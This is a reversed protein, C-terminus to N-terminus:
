RSAFGAEVLDLNDGHIGDRNDEVLLRLVSNPTAGPLPVDLNWLGDTGTLVPTQCLLTDDLFLKVVASGKGAAADDIGVRGVFRARPLAIPFVAEAPAHLGVGRAFTQGRVTLPQGHCNLNRWTKVGPAQWGTKLALPNLTDLYVDPSPPVPPSTQLNASATLGVLKGDRVCRAKLTTATGPPLTVPGTCVKSGATPETGDLTYVVLDSLGVKTLTVPSAFSKRDVVVKPQLPIRIAWAHQCPRTPEDQFRNPISITLGQETQHWALPESAGLMTIQGDAEARIGHLTLTHGPWERCLAYAFHADKSRTYRVSGEQYPPLVRTAYIAEGNVKLWAGLALLRQRVNEPYVGSANPGGIIALNGNRSVIDIFRHILRAPPGLSADDDEYNFAFSQSIGQCEEWPHTFSQTTNYESCFVDGHQDRTGLGYRDNVFVEKRGQARNYFYAALERSRLTEAPTAWEGDMWLGDPDFRDIMEKVLPTMYHDYYNRVPIQGSVRRRSEDTLPHLGAYTGWNWLRCCPQNNTGLVATAWEEYCFYLVTRLQQQRAAALLPTLLDQKPGLHVFNRQTWNSEWWAVGDHHKSMTILYRAGAEKFLNVLANPEFAQAKFYPLFDDWQFDAGWHQAHHARVEPDVYMACGYADPYMAGGRKKDWAPVSHMGWNLMVGLKADLFWEPAQHTDLSQWTPKWPGQENVRHLEHLETEARRMLPASSNDALQETTPQCRFPQFDPPRGPPSLAEASAVAIVFDVLDQRHFFEPIEEHGKGPVVLLRMSGGLAAYRRALEGSNKELPVVRDSDGHIHLIPVHADALPKLRDIPNHEPLHAALTPEDMGYAACAKDLGPYSRLDCVTYIGAVCAVRQPNEAAWNYLMLGGRSQPMLCARAALPYDRRLKQYLATFLQRGAPNGCSEGVDVGAIAIGRDLFQNFMWIHHPEPYGPFTPAYWVWPHLPSNAKATPLFLFAPHGHVEFFTSRCPLKGAIERAALLPTLGEAPPPAATIEPNPGALGVALLFGLPLALQTRPPTTGLRHTTMM